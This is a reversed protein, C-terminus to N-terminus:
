RQAGKLHLEEGAQRTGTECDMFMNRLVQLSPIILFSLAGMEWDVLPSSGLKWLFYSAFVSSRSVYM